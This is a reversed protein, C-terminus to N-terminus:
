RTLNAPWGQLVYKLVRALVPDERTWRKIEDASVPSELVELRHLLSVVEPSPSEELADPQTRKM